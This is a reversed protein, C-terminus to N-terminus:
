MPPLGIKKLTILPKRLSILAMYKKFRGSLNNSGHGSGCGIDLVVSEPNGSVLNYRALHEVLNNRALNSKSDLREGGFKNQEM